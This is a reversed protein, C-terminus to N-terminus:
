NPVFGTLHTVARLVAVLDLTNLAGNGFGGANDTTAPYADGVLYTPAPDVTTPDSATDNVTYSEGGGSVTATNTVSSAANGAVSVTLTISPYSAGTALVDSRTCTLSALTC